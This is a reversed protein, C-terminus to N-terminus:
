SNHDAPKSPPQLNLDQIKCLLTKYSLDLIRSAKSRNWETKELVFRIVEREVRDAARKKVDKLVLSSLPPPDGRDIGSLDSPISFTHESIPAPATGDQHRPTRILEDIIDDGDGLLLIRQLANQLERVNGPWHYESLRSITQARPLKLKKNDLQSAYEKIYYDILHPIDEPRKRLPEVKIVIPSLRYYLDQRFKENKVDQDLDHNTACIVWANTRVSKESGLPSFDGDQLVHLLKSQLYLDMDGIEDLFLVGDSAQEFKGRKRRDAGTFAGKEYGFMESELLTDPLAACNVKVFPKGVRDSKMYLSQVVLEKGVGTEGCVIINMRTDAVREVLKRIREINQSVGIIVPEM